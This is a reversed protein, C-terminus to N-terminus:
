RALHALQTATDTTWRGDARYFRAALQASHTAAGHLRDHAFQDLRSHLGRDALVTALAVSVVAVSALALGLRGRLGIRQRLRM